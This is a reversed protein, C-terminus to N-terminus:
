RHRDIWEKDIDVDICRDTHGDIQRNVYGIRKYMWGSLWGALWGDMFGDMWGDMM